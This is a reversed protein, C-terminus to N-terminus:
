FTFLDLTLLIILQLELWTMLAASLQWLVKLTAYFRYKAPTTSGLPAPAGGSKWVKRRGKSNTDWGNKFSAATFGTHEDRKM